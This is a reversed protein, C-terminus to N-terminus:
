ERGEEKKKQNERYHNMYGIVDIPERLPCWAPFDKVRYSIKKRKMKLCVAMYDQWNKNEFHPCRSGCETLEIIAIKM